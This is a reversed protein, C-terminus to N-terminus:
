ALEEPAEEAMHHGSRISHGMLDTTWSKWVGLETNEVVQVGASACRPVDDPGSHFVFEVLAEDIVTDAETHSIGGKGAAPGERRLAAM